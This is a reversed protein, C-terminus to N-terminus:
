ECQLPHHEYYKNTKPKVNIKFGHLRKWSFIHRDAYIAM